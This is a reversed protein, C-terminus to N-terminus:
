VYVGVELLQCIAHQGPHVAPLFDVWVRNGLRHHDSQTHHWAPQQGVEFFLMLCFLPGLLVHPLETFFEHAISITSRRHAWGRREAEQQWVSRDKGWGDQMNSADGMALEGAAAIMASWIRVSVPCCEALSTPVSLQSWLPNHPTLLLVSRIVGNGHTHLGAAPQVADPRSYLQSSPEAPAQLYPIPRPVDVAAM